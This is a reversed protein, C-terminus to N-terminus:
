RPWRQHLEDIVFAHRHRLAGTQDVRTDHVHAHGPELREHVHEVEESGDRPWLVMVAALGMAGLAALVVFTAGM